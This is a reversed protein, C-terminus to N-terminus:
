HNEGYSDFQKMWVGNLPTKKVWWFDVKCNPTEESCVFEFTSFGLSPCHFSEVVTSQESNQRFQFSTLKKVRKPTREWVMYRSLERSNDLLWVDMKGSYDIDVAPDHPMESPPVLGQIECREMQHDMNRFQMITSTEKTVLFHRDDPYIAGERSYYMRDDEYTKRQPDDSKLQLVVYAFSDIPNFKESANRQVKDLNMYTSIRRPPDTTRYAQSAPHTPFSGNIFLGLSLVSSCIAGICAWFFLRNESLSPRRL